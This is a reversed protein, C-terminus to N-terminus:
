LSVQITESPKAAPLIHTWSRVREHDQLISIKYHLKGDVVAEASKLWALTMKRAALPRQRSM